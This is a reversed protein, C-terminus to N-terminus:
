CLQQLVMYLHPYSVPAYYTEIGNGHSIIVLNGYSGKWGAYTVIGKSAPKIPTGKSNAIDQRKYVDGKTQFKYGAM